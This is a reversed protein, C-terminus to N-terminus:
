ESVPSASNPSAETAGVKAQDVVPSGNRLKIVGSTVIQDTAKLGSLVEYTQGQLSGLKVPQQKAVLATTGEPTTTNEVTFVFSQAGIRMVATTPITLGPKEDWIVRTRVQQDTRLKNGQNNYIAKVLTTQTNTGTDPSIFSVRSVGILEGTEQNLIEIPTGVRLRSIDLVPINIKVELQDNQRISTLVTQSDVYDGEKVLLEAVIGSIPAKIEYFQLEVQQEVATAQAQQVQAGSSAVMAEQAKIRERQQNIQATLSQIRRELDRQAGEVRAEAAAIRKTQSDIQAKLTQVQRALDQKASEVSAQAARVTDQQNALNAASEQIDRVSQDYREKSVVGEQWLQTYRESEKQRYELAAQRRDLESKASQLSDQANKLDAAQSNLTLEFKLRELEAQEASLNEQADKLAAEESNLTLEAEFRQLESKLSELTAKNSNYQGQTSGIQAVRSDLTAQQQSPDIQLLPDGQQVRNGLQVFVRSVQGQVRPKIVANEVGELTAVYETADKVDDSIVQSIEVPTPPPGGAQPPKGCASNLLLTILLIPLSKHLSVLTKM